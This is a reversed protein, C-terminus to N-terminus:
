PQSHLKDDLWSKPWKGCIWSSGCVAGYGVLSSADSCLKHKYVPRCMFSKGNYHMLFQKWMVLDLKVENTIRKHYWPRLLGITLDYLRRLFPRGYPMTSTAFCLKGTLKQINILTAKDVGLFWDLWSICDQIKELPLRCEMKVTDLEIGVFSLCQTPGETKSPEVPIGMDRFFSLINRLATSCSEYDQAIILFDDLIHHCAVHFKHRIVWELATAFCEWIKCSTGMGMPLVLDVYYFDNLRFGLLHQEEPHVPVNQYARMIDLKALYCHPGVRKITEVADGITAYHVTKIDDPISQNISREDYPWSLDHIRRFKGPTRKPRVSVPSCRFYQHPPATFPGAIIGTAVGKAILGEMAGPYKEITHSQPAIMLMDKGAFGTRFGQTFGCHLYNVIQPDYGELFPLLKDILM